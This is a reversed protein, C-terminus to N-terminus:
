YFYSCNLVNQELIVPKAVLAFSSELYWNEVTTAYIWPIIWHIQFVILEASGPKMKMAKIVRLLISVKGCCRQKKILCGEM